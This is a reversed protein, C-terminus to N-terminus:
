GWDCVNPLAVLDANPQRDTLISGLLSGVARQRRDRTILALAGTRQRQWNALDCSKRIECAAPGNAPRRTRQDPRRPFCPCM